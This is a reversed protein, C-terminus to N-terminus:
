RVHNRQTQSASKRRIQYWVAFWTMPIFLALDIVIGIGELMGSRFATVASLWALANLTWIAAPAFRARRVIAFATLVCLGCWLVLWRIITINTPPWFAALAIVALIVCFAAFAKEALHLQRVVVTQQNSM